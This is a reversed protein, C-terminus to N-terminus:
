MNNLMNDCHMNNTYSTLRTTQSAQTIETFTIGDKSGFVKWLSPAKTLADTRQYIRYRSLLIEQPMKIIVWDGYYNNIKDNGLYDGTGSSYLTIGFRASSTTQSTDYNFLNEARTNTDYQSSYYIEYVGSGYAISQNDLYFGTRYRLQGLLTITDQQLITNYLKSPYQRESTYNYALNYLHNSTLYIDDLLINNQKIKGQAIIENAAVGNINAINGTNLNLTDCKLSSIYQQGTINSNIFGQALTANYINCTYEIYNDIRNSDNNALLEDRRTSNIINSGYADEIRTQITSNITQIYSLNQAAGVIFGFAVGGLGLFSLVFPNSLIRVSAIQIAEALYSIKAQSFLNRLALEFGQWSTQNILQNGLEQAIIDTMDKIVQSRPFAAQLGAIINDVETELKVIKVGFALDTAAIAAGLNADSANLAVLSNGVDIWGSLFTLNVLPDYIYYVKLKGDVDIKVRYDPAIGIMGVPIFFDSTSKCWFRIEGLVNSNSIYTHNLTTPTPLLINESKNEIMPDYRALINNSTYKTYNSSNIETINAYNSTFNSSRLDLINSINSSYNSCNSAQLYIEKALANSATKFYDNHTIGIFNNTNYLNNNNM